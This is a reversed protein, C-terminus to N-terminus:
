NMLIIESFAMSIDDKTKCLFRLKKNQPCLGISYDPFCWIARTSACNKKYSCNKCIKWGPNTSTRFSVKETNGIKFKCFYNYKEMYEKNGGMDNMVNVTLEYSIFFKIADLIFNEYKELYISNIRVEKGAQVLFDIKKLFNDLSFSDSSRSIEAYVKPQIVPLSIHVCDLYTVLESLLINFRLFNTTIRTKLNLKKGIKLLYPLSLHCLPEGGSFSVMNGGLNHFIQMVSAIWDSDMDNVNSEIDNFDHSCFICSNNCRNTLVPRLYITNLMM